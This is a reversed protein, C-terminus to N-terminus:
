SPTLSKGFPKLHEICHHLCYYLPYVQHAAFIEQLQQILDKGNPLVGFLLQIMQQYWEYTYHTAQPRFM